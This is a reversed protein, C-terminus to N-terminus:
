TPLSPHRGYINRDETEQRVCVDKGSTLLKYMFTVVFSVCEGNEASHLSQM